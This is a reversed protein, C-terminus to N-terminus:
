MKPEEKYYQRNYQEAHTIWKPDMKYKPEVQQDAYGLTLLGLPSVYDPIRLNRRLVDEKIGGFWCSAVGYSTATLIMNQVANAVDLSAWKHSLDGYRSATRKTNKCIVIIKSATQIWSQHPAKDSYFGSFTSSVVASKNKEESVVIFEWPQMNGSSPARTGAHIIDYLTKESIEKETFGRTSVRSYISPIPKDQYTM